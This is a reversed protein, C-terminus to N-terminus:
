VCRSTYLLCTNLLGDVSFVAKWLVAIAVSGGLISPIYYVTGRFSTKASNMAYMRFKLIAHTLRNRVQRKYVDLQTYSVPDGGRGTRHAAPCTQPGPAAPEAWLSDRICM